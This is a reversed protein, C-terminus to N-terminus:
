DLHKGVATLTDGTTEVVITLGLAEDVLLSSKAVHIVGRLYIPKLTIDLYSTHSDTRRIGIEAGFLKIFCPRFRKFFNGVLVDFIYEKASRLHPYTQILFTLERLFDIKKKLVGM